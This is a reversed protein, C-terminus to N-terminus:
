LYAFLSLGSVQLFSKQAAQLAVQQRAFDSLAKNYDVDVLNSITEELSIQQDENSTALAALEGLRAGLGARVSLVNELGQDINILASRLRNALAAQGAGGSAPTNLADILNQLTTFISQTGAPALTFTDGNAPAGSVSVQMGAVDIAADSHYANGTSVYAAATLDYVDYTTGGAGSVFRLEYTHGTILAQDSVHGTSIIGTGTNSGAAATTFTGNGARIRQFVAEGNESIALNRSPAVELTRVGADGNYVVGAATKVFPLVNGKFGAFMYFSDGDKSNALTILQKLSGTLEIAIAKRDNDTLGGNGANVAQTRAGQLVDTVRALVGEVLNLSDKATGINASYQGSRARAQEAVLLRAAAVPDDSPTSLRKGTAIQQQTRLLEAQQKLIASVGLDYVQGTSVRM